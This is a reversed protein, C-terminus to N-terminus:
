QFTISYYYNKDHIIYFIKTDTKIKNKSMFIVLECTEDVIDISSMSQIFNARSKNISHRLM